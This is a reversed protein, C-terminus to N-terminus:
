LGAIKGVFRFFVGVDIPVAIGAAIVPLYVAGRWVASVAYRGLLYFSYGVWVTLFGPTWAFNGEPIGRLLLSVAWGLTALSSIALVVGHFALVGRRWPAKLAAAGATLLLLAALPLSFVAISTAMRAQEPPALDRLLLAGGHALMVFGAMGASGLLLFWDPIGDLKALISRV